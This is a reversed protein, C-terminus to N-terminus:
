YHNYIESLFTENLPKACQLDYLGIAYGKSNLEHVAKEVTHFLAGISLIAVKNGKLLENGNFTNSKESVIFNENLMGKGRPYRIAIPGNSQQAAYQMMEVLQAENRPTLLQMNPICQLFALDFVGQHTAGDNGVLGARDILFVVPLKQLAV